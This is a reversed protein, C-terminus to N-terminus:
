KDKMNECCAGIACTVVAFAPMAAYLFHAVNDMMM